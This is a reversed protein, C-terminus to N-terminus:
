HKGAGQGGPLMALVREVLLAASEDKGMLALDERKGDAYLLSLQSENASVAGVENIVIMDLSKRRLKKEARQQVGDRGGDAASELAFGIVLRHEKASGLAAIIDPNPQLELQAQERARSMKGAQRRAPRFDAVAAVGIAIDAESFAELAQDHMEQASVVSRLEVGAPTLQSNPGAVLIVRHGRAAAAAAIAYGMRGSSANSLYRVDDLYERTPGATVLITTM